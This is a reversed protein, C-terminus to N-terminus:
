FICKSILKFDSNYKKFYFWTFESSFKHYIFCAIILNLFSFILQIIFLIRAFVSSNKNPPGFIFLLFAYVFLTFSLLIQFTRKALIGEIIFMNEFFVCALYQLISETGVFKRNASHIALITPILEFVLIISFILVYFMHKKEDIQFEPVM